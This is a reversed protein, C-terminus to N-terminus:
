NRKVIILAVLAVVAIAIILISKNNSSSSSNQQQQLKVKTVADTLLQLRQVDNNANALQQNLVFQQENSLGQLSQNFHQEEEKLKIAANNAKNGQIIGNIAGGIKLIDDVIFAM